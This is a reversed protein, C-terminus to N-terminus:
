PASDGRTARAARSDLGVTAVTRTGTTRGIRSRRTCLQEVSPVDGSGTQKVADARAAACRSRTPAPVSRCQPRAFAPTTTARNDVSTWALWFRVQNGRALRGASSLMRRKFLGPASVPGLRRYGSRSAVCMSPVLVVFKMYSAGVTFRRWCAGRGSRIGFRMQASLLIESVDTVYREATGLRAPKLAQAKAAQEQEILEVRSAPQAASQVSQDPLADQAFVVGRSGFLVLV